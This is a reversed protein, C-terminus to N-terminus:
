LLSADVDIQWKVELHAGAVPLEVPWTAPSTVRMGFTWAPAKFMPAALPYSRELTGGHGALPLGGGSELSPLSYPDTGRPALHPSVMLQAPGENTIFLRLRAARVQLQAAEPPVALDTAPAQLCTEGEIGLDSVLSRYPVLLVQPLTRYPLKCGPLATTIAVLASGWLLPRTAM